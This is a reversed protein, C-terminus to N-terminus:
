PLNPRSKPKRTPFLVMLLQHTFSAFFWFLCASLTNRLVPDRKDTKTNSYDSTMRQANQPLTSTFHHRDKVASRRTLVSSFPCLSINQTCQAKEETELKVFQDANPALAAFAV